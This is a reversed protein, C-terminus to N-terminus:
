VSIVLDLNACKVHCHVSATYEAGHVDSNKVASRSSRNSFFCRTESGEDLLLQARGDFELFTPM